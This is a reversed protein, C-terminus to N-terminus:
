NQWVGWNPFFNKLRRKGFIVLISILVDAQEPKETETYGMVMLADRMRASDYVNM